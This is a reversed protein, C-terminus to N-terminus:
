PAVVFLSMIVADRMDENRKEPDGRKNSIEWESLDYLKSLKMKVFEKPKVGALRAAGLVQKRATMAGVLNVKPFNDQLVYELVANFRALMIVVTRSSPGSFGSLSGELNIEEISHSLKKIQDVIYQVKDRNGILDSLDWFGADLIKESETVAWGCTRTSADLGLRVM